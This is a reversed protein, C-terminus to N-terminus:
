AFILFSLLNGYTSSRLNGTFKPITSNCWIIQKNEKYDTAHLACLPPHHSVKSCFMHIGIKILDNWIIDGMTVLWASRAVIDCYDRAAM